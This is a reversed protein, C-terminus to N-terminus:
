VYLERRFERILIEDKGVKEVIGFYGEEEMEDDIHLGCLEKSECLKILQNRISM